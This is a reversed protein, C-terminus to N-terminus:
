RVTFMVGSRRGERTPTGKFLGGGHVVGAWQNPGDFAFLEPPASLRIDWVTVGQSEALEFEGAYLGTSADVRAIRWVPQPRHARAAKERAVEQHVEARGSERLTEQRVTTTVRLTTLWRLGGGIPKWFKDRVTRSFIALVGAVVLTGVITVLLPLWWLKLWDDETM